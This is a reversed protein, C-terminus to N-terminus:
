DWKSKIMCVNGLLKITYKKILMQKNNLLLNINEFLKYDNGIINLECVLDNLIMLVIRVVAIAKNLLTENVLQKILLKNNLIDNCITKNEMILEYLYNLEDVIFLDNQILTEMLSKMQIKDYTNNFPIDMCIPPLQSLELQILDFAESKNETETQSWLNTSALADGTTHRFEIQTNNIAIKVFIYHLIYSM